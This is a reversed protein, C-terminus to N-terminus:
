FKFSGRSSISLFSVVTPGNSTLLYLLSLDQITRDALFWGESFATILLEFPAKACMRHGSEVRISEAHCGLAAPIQMEIVVHPHRCSINTCTNLAYCKSAAPQSQPQSMFSCRSFLSYVRKEMVCWRLFFLNKDKSPSSFLHLLLNHQKM